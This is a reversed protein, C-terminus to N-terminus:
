GLSAHCQLPLAMFLRILEPHTPTVGHLFMKVSRKFWPMHIDPSVKLRFRLYRSLNMRKARAREPHLRLPPTRM